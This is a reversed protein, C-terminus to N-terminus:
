TKWYIPSRRKKRTAHKTSERKTKRYDTATRKTVQLETKGTPREPAKIELVRREGKTVKPRRRPNCKPDGPGTPGPQRSVTSGVLTGMCRPARKKFFLISEHLTANTKRKAVPEGDVRPLVRRSKRSRAGMCPPARKKQVQSGRVRFGIFPSLSFLFM